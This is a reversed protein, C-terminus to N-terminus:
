EIGHLRIQGKGIDIFGRMARLFDRGLVINGKNPEMIFFDVTANRKSFTVRVDKVKGQSSPAVPRMWEPLVRLKPLVPALAGKAMAIVPMPLSPCPAM